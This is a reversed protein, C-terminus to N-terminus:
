RLLEDGPVTDNKSPKEILRVFTDPVMNVDVAVKVFAVCLTAKCHKSPIPFVSVLFM